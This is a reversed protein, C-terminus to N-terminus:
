FQGVLLNINLDAIDDIAITAIDVELDTDDEEYLFAVEATIDDTIVAGIALALGFVLKKLRM